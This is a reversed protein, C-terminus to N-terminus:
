RHPTDSELLGRSVSFLPPHNVVVSVSVDSGKLAIIHKEAYTM